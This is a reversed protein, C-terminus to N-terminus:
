ECSRSDARNYGPTGVAARAAPHTATLLPLGSVRSLEQDLSYAMTMGSRLATTLETVEASLREHTRVLAQVHEAMEDNGRLRLM